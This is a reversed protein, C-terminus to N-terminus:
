RCGEVGEFGEVVLVRMCVRVCVYSICHSITDYTYVTFYLLVIPVYSFVLLFFVILFHSM